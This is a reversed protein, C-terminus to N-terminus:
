KPEYIVVKIQMSLPTLDKEMIVKVIEWDLKGQGCGLAPFAISKYVGENKKIYRPLCQTLKALGKELYDVRSNDKWHKKTPFYCISKGYTSKVKVFLLNGVGFQGTDCMKKYKLFADPFKKRFEGALANTCGFTNVPNVLIDCKSDFISGTDRFEIM